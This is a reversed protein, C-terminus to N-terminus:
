TKYTKTHLLPEYEPKNLSRIREELRHTRVYVNNTTIGMLEAIMDPKLDILWYCLFRVEAPKGTIGLDVKLRAVIGDCDADLRRELTKIDSEFKCAERVDKRLVRIVEADSSRGKQGMWMLYGYRGYKRYRELRSDLLQFRLQTLRSSLDESATVSRAEQMRLDQELESRISLLRDRELRLHNNRIVLLLALLLLLVSVVLTLTVLRLRREREGGALEEYYDQLSRTVSDSLTESILSEELVHMESQLRYATAYDGSFVSMRVLWPLADYRDLGKFLELRDRLSEAATTRGTLALAYAYAGAEQPTLSGTRERKRDLLSLAGNPDLDPQHLKMRAYNSLYGNMANPYLESHAIAIQFLSDARAWEKRLHSVVALEGLVSNYIPDQAEQFVSLAKEVYENQKDVNYVSGYVSSMAEYLLGVAHRDEAIEAYTEARTYFIAARNQDGNAQAICGQYYLTKMRDDASGHRDYWAAADDILGPVTLDRYSKAQAMTRLLSYRARLSRTTLTSSDVGELVALASDPRENVYREVDNLMAATRNRYAPSCAMTSIVIATLLLSRIMNNNM